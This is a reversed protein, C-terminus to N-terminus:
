QGAAEARNREDRLGVNRKRFMLQAAAGFIYPLPGIVARTKSESDAYGDWVVIARDQDRCHRVTASPRRYVDGDPRGLANSPM